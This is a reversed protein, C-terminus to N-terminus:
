LAYLVTEATDINYHRIYFKYDSVFDLLISPIEWIDEPKHYISIALKPKYKRITQEAGKLANLEAGEIDMKIFTPIGIEKENELYEDLSITEITEEGGSEIRGCGIYGQNKFFKLVEKKHWLGKNVVKVNNYNLMKDKCVKYEIPNPEFIISKSYNNNTWQFFDKTSSGDLGGVDIFFENEKPIFYPLDFYQNLLDKQLIICDTPFGAQLLQNKMELQYKPSVIVLANKSNKIFEQVSIVPLVGPKGIKENDNDIFACFIIKPLHHVLFLGFEGAGFIYIKEKGLMKKYNTIKECLGEELLDEMSSGTLSYCLRKKFLSRSAEDGLHSYIDKLCFKEIYSLM